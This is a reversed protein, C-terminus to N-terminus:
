PENPGPHAMWISDMVRDCPIGARESTHKVAVGSAAEFLCLVLDDDRFLISGLYAVPGAAGSISEAERVASRAARELEDETVGPWYCKAAYLM